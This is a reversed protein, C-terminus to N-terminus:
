DGSSAEEEKLADLMYIKDEGRKNYKKVYAELMLFHFFAQTDGSGYNTFISSTTNDIRKTIKEWLRTKMSGRKENVFNIIKKCIIMYERNLKKNYDKGIDSMETIPKSFESNSIIKMRRECCHSISPDIGDPTDPTRFYDLFLDVLLVAWTVCLGFTIQSDLPCYQEVQCQRIQVHLNPCRTFKIQEYGNLLINLRGDLVLTQDENDHEDTQYKESTNGIGHPEIRIFQKSDIDILLYNAHGTRKSEINYHELTIMVIYIKKDTSVLKDLINLKELNSTVTYTGDDNIESRWNIFTDQGSIDGSISDCIDNYKNVLYFLGLNQFSRTGRQVGPRNEPIIGLTERLGKLYGGAGGSIVNDISEFTKTTENNFLFDLDDDDFVADPIDTNKLENMFKSFNYEVCYGISEFMESLSKSSSLSPLINYLEKMDLEEM